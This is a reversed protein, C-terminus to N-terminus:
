YFVITNKLIVVNAVRESIQKVSSISMLTPYFVKGGIKPLLSRLEVKTILAMM